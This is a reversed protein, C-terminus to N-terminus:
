PWQTQLLKATTSGLRKLDRNDPGEEALLERATAMCQRAEEVEKLHWHLRARYLWDAARSDRKSVGDFSRKALDWQEAECAAAGRLAQYRPSQPIERCLEEAYKLALQPNRLSDEPVDLLFKALNNKSRPSRNADALSRWLDIARTHSQRAEEHNGSDSQMRGRARLCFATIEAPADWSRDTSRLRALIGDAEDLCETAAPLRDLKHRVEGLHLLSIALRLQHDREPQERATLKRFAEVSQAALKEAAENEGLDAGVRGLNDWCLGALYRMVVSDPYNELASEVRQRVTDLQTRAEKLQGADSLAQAWDIVRLDREEAIRAISPAQEALRTWDSVSGAYEALAAEVQGARDLAQALYVRSQNRAEVFRFDDLGQRELERIHSLGIRIHEIAQEHEGSQSAQYGLLTLVKVYDTLWDTRQPQRVTLGRLHEAASILLTQAERTDGGDMLLSGCNLQAAALSYKVYEDLTQRQHLKSLEDVAERSLTLGANRDKRRVAVAARRARANALETLSEIETVPISRTTNFVAQAQQYAAEAASDDALESRLDGVILWVRGRELELQPDDSPVKALEEYQQAGQMLFERQPANM